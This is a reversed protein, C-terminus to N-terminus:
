ITKTAFIGKYGAEEKTKRLLRELTLPQMGLSLDETKHVLYLM